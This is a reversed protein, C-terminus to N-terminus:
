YAVGVAQGLTAPDDELLSCHAANAFVHQSPERRAADMPRALPNQHAHRAEMGPEEGPPLGLM